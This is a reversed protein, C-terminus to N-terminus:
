EIAELAKENGATELVKKLKEKDVEDAYEEYFPLTAEVWAEYEDDTLERIEARDEELKEKLEDDIDANLARLYEFSEDLSDNIIDQDEDSLSEMIEQNAIVIEPDFIHGTLTINPAPAH